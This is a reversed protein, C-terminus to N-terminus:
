YITKEKCLSYGGEDSTAGFIVPSKVCVQIKVMSGIAKFRFSSVNEMLTATKTTTSNYEDGDWPQYDYHLVLKGTYNGTANYDELAVAYATWALQYYEYVDTKNFDNANNTSADRPIFIDEENAVSSQMIPHMVSINQDSLPNGDWGYASINTDSGIFYIASNNIDTGTSYSLNKIIENIATTNTEPSKLQTSSTQADYLDIISSYTSINADSLNTDGRLGDIDSGVWELINYADSNASGLSIYSNNSDARAIISDKIRFQLRSSIGEVASESQSQLENNVKSFIFSNYAQFLFEVGYKSLLGIIIIVFILEIMTFASHKKM